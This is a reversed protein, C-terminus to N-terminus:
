FRWTIGIQGEIQQLTDGKIAITCAGGACFLGGSSNVFTYYLRAEIRLALTGTSPPLLPLLYGIGLNLSPRTESEFGDLGPTLRTLGLGGAVYPGRGIPGDFFNTGGFHLYTIKLPLRQAPVGTAAPIAEFSTNQHSAYLQLQRSADYGFDIAVSAGASDRLRISRDNTADQLDGSARWGGFLSIGAEARAAPSALSLPLLAAAVFKACTKTRM